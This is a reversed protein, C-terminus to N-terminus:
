RWLEDAEVFTVSDDDNAVFFKIMAITDGNTMIAMM